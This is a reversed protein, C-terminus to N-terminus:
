QPLVSRGNDLAPLSASALRGDMSTPVACKIVLKTLIATLVLTAALSCVAGIALGAPLSTARGTIKKNAVM